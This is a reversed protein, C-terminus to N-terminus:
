RNESKLFAQRDTYDLCVDFVALADRGIIGDYDVMDFTSEQPVTVEANRFLVPGFAFDQVTFTRADV